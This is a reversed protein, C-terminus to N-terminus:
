FVFTLIQFLHQILILFFLPDRLVNYYCNFFFILKGKLFNGNKELFLIKEDFIFM